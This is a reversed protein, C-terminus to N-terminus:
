HSNPTWGKPHLRNVPRLQRCGLPHVGFWFLSFPRAFVWQGAQLGCKGLNDQFYHGVQQDIPADPASCEHEADYGVVVSQLRNVVRGNRAGNTRYPYIDTEYTRMFNLLLGLLVLLIKQKKKPVM